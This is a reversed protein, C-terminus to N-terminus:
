SEGPGLKTVVDDLQTRRTEGLLRNQFKCLRQVLDSMSTNRPLFLMLNSSFETAKEIICDFDPFIHELAYEDMLNYGTGGWPPSVFVANFQKNANSAPFHM